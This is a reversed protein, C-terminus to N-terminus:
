RRDECKCVERMKVGSYLKGGPGNRHGKFGEANETWLRNHLNRIKRETGIFVRQSRAIQLGSRAGIERAIWSKTFGAALMEGILRRTEDGDVEALDKVAHLDSLTVGLIKDATGPFTKVRRGTRILWLTNHNVGSAKEIANAGFGQENLKILYDRARAASVLNDEWDSQLGYAKRRRHIQAIRVIEDTCPGCRCKHQVYRTSTGHPAIKGKRHTQRPPDKYIAPGVNVNAAGSGADM